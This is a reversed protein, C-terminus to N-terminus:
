GKGNLAVRALLTGLILFMAGIVYLPDTQM